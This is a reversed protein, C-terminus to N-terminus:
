PLSRSGQATAQMALKLGAVGGNADLWRTVRCAARAYLIPTKGSKVAWQFPSSPMEGEPEALCRTESTIGSGVYRPDNSVLVALGEDFWAPVSGTLLQLAGLRSHFEVHSFEHALVTQNLGRPSVRIFLTGFTTARAGSGGLRHDCADTHCALITPRHEFSGYFLSVQEAAEAVTERLSEREAAPMASEVLLDSTVPELGYCAPCVYAAMAPWAVVVGGVVLFICVIGLQTVRKARRGRLIELTV